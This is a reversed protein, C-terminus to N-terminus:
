LFVFWVHRAISEGTDEYVSVYKNDSLSFTRLALKERNLQKPGPQISLSEVSVLRPMLFVGERESVCEYKSEKCSVGVQVPVEVYARDFIIEVPLARSGKQWNVEHVLLTAGRSAAQKVTILLSVDDYFFEDGLDTTITLVLKLSLDAGAGGHFAPLKLFRIYFM